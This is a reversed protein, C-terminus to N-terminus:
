QLFSGSKVSQLQWGTQKVRVAMPAAATAQGRATLACRHLRRPFFLAHVQLLGVRM